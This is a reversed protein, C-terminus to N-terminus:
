LLTTPDIDHTWGAPLHNIVEVLADRRRARITLQWNHKGNLKERFAPSPGTIAIHPTTKLQDALQEAAKQASSASARACNLQLFHYFPPFGHKQREALQDQYFTDWDQKVAAQVSPSDPQYSQVIVKGKTHGRGVRGIVQTLMQYTREEASFDPLYLSTDAIVVGVVALKPLDLGKAIMQTGVIIDIKGAHIDAFHRELREDTLNDTDFRQIRAEPFLKELESVISKTGISRFIVEASGCEPCSSPTTAHHGCTHCVMQHTDGHYTLPLDCAPCLASWGCLQCLVLRATGRRNLFVLSQENSNLAETIAAHLPTSIHGSKSFQERNKLDVMTIEREIKRGSPLENLRVIPIQKQEALWYEGVSPTASGIVLRANHLQALKSAVRLAHYRPSSDQKYAQEHAEDVIILGLHHIPAFLASRPGIIIIPQQSCLVRLWQDRREAPTQHSHMVVVQESFHTEFQAVLQPTLGIEPTLVLVSHNETLAKKALEMYLRTKGTGTDGHVLSTRSPSSTIITSATDQQPSLRPLPKPASSVAATKPLKPAKALLLGSPLAQQAILGLPSPYYAHLWDLLKIIQPPLATDTLVVTIPKTAYKPKTVEGAVIALQKKNRLPVSVIVGASLQQESQYTLPESGHYQPSSVLVEYYYM